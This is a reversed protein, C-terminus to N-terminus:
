VGYVRFQCVSTVHAPSVAAKYGNTNAVEVFPVPKSLAQIVDSYAMKTDVTEGDDLYIVTNTM